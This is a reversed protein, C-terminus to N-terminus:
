FFTLIADVVTRERDVMPVVRWRDFAGCPHSISFCLLDGVECSAGDPLRVHAHQDSLRLIEAGRLPADADPSRRHTPIPMGQDFPADRRGFDVIAYHREPRSLVTSWLEIANRLRLQGRGRGALPSVQCYFGGDQTVYCGSRLVLRAPLTGLKAVVRDFFASGGASLLPESPLADADLLAEFAAVVGDLYTDVLELSAATDPAAFLGEFCEVGVLDLHDAAHVAAVAATLTDADRAGTRGGTYGLEAFIGIPRTAGFRALQANLRAAGEVSDVLCLFEFDPDRRLEECLWSVAGASVLQNALLIRQVGFRRYLRCHTPTAATMAWAGADIQRAFIQPAMTTKGHPALLAGQERCYTAMTETNNALDEARILLHPTIAEEALLPAGSSALEGLTSGELGSPIGKTGIPLKEEYLQLVATPDYSTALPSMQQAGGIVLALEGILSGGTQPTGM